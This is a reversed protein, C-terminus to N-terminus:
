GDRSRALKWVTSTRRSATMILVYKPTECNVADLGGDCMEALSFGRDGADLAVTNTASEEGSTAAPSV